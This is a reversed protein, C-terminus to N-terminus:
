QDAAARTSYVVSLLLPGLFNGIAFPLIYWGVHGSAVGYFDTLILAYTFFIANYFFAQAAMLSLGVMTRRLHRRFLVDMVLHLPTSRRPACNPARCGMHRRCRPSVPSSIPLSRKPKKQTAM